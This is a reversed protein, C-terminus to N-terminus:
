IKGKLVMVGYPPLTVTGGVAKGTLLDRRKTKGLAIRKPTSAFNSIFTFTGNANERTQVTVGDPIAPLAPAIKQRKLVRQQVHDALAAGGDTAVYWAEGKGFKNVTVAPTGAYYDVMARCGVGPVM